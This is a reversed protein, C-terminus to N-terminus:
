LCNERRFKNPELSFEKYQKLLSELMCYNCTWPQNTCDGSHTSNSKLITQYYTVLKDAYDLWSQELVDFDKCELRAVFEMFSMSSYQIYKKDRVKLYKKESGYKILDQKMDDEIFQKTSKDNLNENIYRIPPPTPKKM